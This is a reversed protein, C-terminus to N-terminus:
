WMDVDCFEVFIAVEDDTVKEWRFSNREKASSDDLEEVLEGEFAVGLSFEGGAFLFGVYAIIDTDWEMEM